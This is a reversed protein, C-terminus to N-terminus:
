VEESLEDRYERPSKGLHRKVYKGFFSLNPFDLENAVEKISKNSQRLLIEVDNLVYQNIIDSATHGSQEKCIASLYKPTIHLKDAYWAVSRKKPYSMTVLELFASFQNEASSYGYPNFDVFRELTDYLEYIFAQLLANTVEVQHKCFRKTVRFYFMDYYQRFGSVEDDTINIVPNKDIFQKVNWINKSAFSLRKIYEPSICFCVIDIDDSWSRNELITSPPYILMENKHVNCTKGNVCFTSKGNICVVFVFTGVRVSTVDSVNVVSVHDCNYVVGENIGLDGIAIIELNKM